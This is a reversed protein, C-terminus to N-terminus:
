YAPTTRGAGRRWAPAAVAMRVGRVVAAREILTDFNTTVAARLGGCRALSAIARHNEDADAVDVVTLLSSFTPGAFRSSVLDALHQTEKVPALLAAMDVSATLQPFGERLRDGLSQAAAAYIDWWSPSCSPALM